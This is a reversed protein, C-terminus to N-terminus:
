SMEPSKVLKTLKPTAASTCVLFERKERRRKTKTTVLEVDSGEPESEGSYTEAEEEEDSDTDPCSEEDSSADIQRTHTNTSNLGPRPPLSSLVVIRGETNSRDIFLIESPERCLVCEILNTDKSVTKECFDKACKVHLLQSCECYFLAPRPESIAVTEQCIPCLQEKCIREKSLFVLREERLAQPESEDITGVYPDPEM